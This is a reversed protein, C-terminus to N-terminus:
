GGAVVDLFGQGYQDIRSPGFGYVAALEELSRPRRQAVEALTRDFAVVYAPVRKSRAVEARHARLREFLAREDDSLEVAPERPERKRPAGDGKEGKSARRRAPARPPLVIRAPAAGRMVEAGARTVFPVPHESTTLDVWGAAMLARLLAVVWDREFSKLLGFTSLRTFGFRRTKEDDVGHLMDVIAQLGARRQARAVGSLAKQVLTVVPEGFDDDSAPADDLAACVDCHGCGGLVEQEDGFYRLV